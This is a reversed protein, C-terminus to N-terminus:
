SRALVRDIDTMTRRALAYNPDLSLAKVLHVRAQRYRGLARLVLAANLHAEDVAEGPTRRLIASRYERLAESLRGQRALTAGLLIHHATSREASLARRFWREARRLDQKERYLFGWQIWVRVAAKGSSLQGARRIAAAAESYLALEALVDAFLLWARVSRPFAEVHWRAEEVACAPGSECAKLLRKWAQQENPM